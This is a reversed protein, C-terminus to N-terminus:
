KLKQRIQRADMVRDEARESYFTGNYPVIFTEGKELVVIEKEELVFVQLSGCGVLNAGAILFVLAIKIKIHM